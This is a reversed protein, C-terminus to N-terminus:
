YGLFATMSTVEYSCSLWTGFQSSAGASTTNASLYDGEEMYFANDRAVLTLTSNAPISMNGALYSITTSRGVTVNTTIAGATTNSISLESVKILNGSTSSNVIVNTLTTNLNLYNRKSLVTKINLVNPAPM